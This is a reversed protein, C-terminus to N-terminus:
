NDIKDFINLSDEVKKLKELFEERKKKEKEVVEKPAKSLFSENQLKKEIRDLEKKIKQIEKNLRNKEGEIDVVGEIDLFIETKAIYDKVLKGAVEDTKKNFSILNALRCIYELNKEIFNEETIYYGKVKKSPSINLEGRINRIGSILEKVKEIEELEELYDEIENYDIFSSVIIDTDVKFKHWLEETVFPIMPHLMQLIAKFTYVLTWQTSKRLEVNNLNAKSLEIYWDCFEHWTFQYIHHVVENFKYEDMSKEFNKVCEKLKALIWKDLTSLKEPKQYDFDTINMIVFKAANWVKNIFAKYGIIRQESLRIDRGQAAFAALTLRLADAGHKKIIELPDIVNGKSKSMKQGHEDRVLAHIYVDRFPVDGMFKLGMMMMRAVWFFLIDFGTVLVSTPYFVELLKTKEPWGMTSFPWLASSFWTDLVDSDQYINESNCNPCKTLDERSAAEKGCDNCYWVPIRHGWWIQRSICWDRINEMWGYYNNEWQEPIIRTNGKKVAEIAKEALPKIKVFWQESILPEVITSCRYCHGAFLKYDDIKELLGLSELDNLIKERAEYRDLGAYKGANENMKADKTMVNVFKLNHKEGIMFDNFDHAPTIKVVGTGFEKDVYEDAIVPIERNMLPLIVTKGILDKYREDNPNVAVATDGLMTEPRTTAVVVYRDKEGKVPYKLYWLKGDQEKMEVELDSLATHCRPCWNIIYNGKYILGEEYLRVFVERVAKSLGEDMTFRIRDWDCTAGLRKLQRIITNGYQEKWKWVEEIFKERGIDHRSIGKKALEREVVNQTAIGAHDTGPMWLVNYGKLRKYRALIDQLTNNLAHGMHLSGTVNPPPIVMSFPKKESNEGAHFYKNEEWYKYWKEEFKNFDYESKLFEEM